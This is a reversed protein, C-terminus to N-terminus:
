DFRGAAQNLLLISHEAPPPEPDPIGPVPTEKSGTGLANPGTGIPTPADGAAQNKRVTYDISYGMAAAIGQLQRLSITGAVESKEFQHIAQPSVGILDAVAQLTLGRKQRVHRLWGGPPKWTADDAGPRQADPASPGSQRPTSRPQSM